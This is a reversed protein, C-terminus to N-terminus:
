EACKSCQTAIVALPGQTSVRGYYPLRATLRHSFVSVNPRLQLRRHHLQERARHVPHREIIAAHRHRMHSARSLNIEDPNAGSVAHPNPQRRVIRGSAPDQPQEFLISSLILMFTRADTLFIQSLHLIM